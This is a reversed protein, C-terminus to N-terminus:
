ARMAIKKKSFSYKTIQNCIANITDADEKACIVKSFLTEVDCVKKANYFVYVRVNSLETDDVYVDDDVLSNKTHIYKIPEACIMFHPKKLYVREIVKRQFDKDSIEKMGETEPILFELNVNSDSSGLLKQLVKEIEKDKYVVLVHVNVKSMFM